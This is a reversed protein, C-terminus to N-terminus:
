KFVYKFGVKFGFGYPNGAKNDEVLSKVYYRANPELGFLFQPSIHYNIGVNMQAQMNWSTRKHYVAEQKVINGELQPEPIDQYIRFSNNIGMKAYYSFKKGLQGGYGFSIPINLYVYANKNQSVAVKDVTDYVNVEKTHYTPMIEGNITDFTVEYVDAYSGKFVAEEYEVSYLGDDKSFSVGLGTEGFWNNNFFYTASLDIGYSQINNENEPLTIWEPSFQLGLEWHKANNHGATIEAIADDDFFDRGAKSSKANQVKAELAPATNTEMAITEAPSASLSEPQPDQRHDPTIFSETELIDEEFVMEEVQTIIQKEIKPSPTEKESIIIPQSQPSIESINTTEVPSEQAITTEPSPTPAATEELILSSDNEMDKDLYLYGGFSFLLLFVSAAAWYKWQSSKAATSLGAAQVGAWVHEPPMMEHPHLKDRFIQDFENNTLNSM